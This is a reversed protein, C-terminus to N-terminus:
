CEAEIAGTEQDLYAYVKTARIVGDKEYTCTYAFQRGTTIGVFVASTFSNGKYGSNRVAKAITDLSLHSLTLVENAPIM